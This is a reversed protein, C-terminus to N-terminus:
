PSHPTTHVARLEVAFRRWEPSTPKSFSTSHKKNIQNWRIPTKPKQTTQRARTGGGRGSFLQKAIIKLRDGGLEALESGPPSNGHQRNQALKGGRDSFLHKAIIKLRDRPLRPRTVKDECVFPPNNSKYTVFCSNLLNVLWRCRSHKAALPM